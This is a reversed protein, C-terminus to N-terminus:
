AVEGEAAAVLHRRLAREARARRALVADLCLGSRGALEGPRIGLVRTAWVLTAAEPSLVGCGVAMAMIEVADGFGGDTSSGAPDVQGTPAEHTRRRAAARLEDRVATRAGSIITRDPWALRQGALRRLREWAAAAVAQEVEARDARWSRALEAAVRGLGPLCATLVVEAALPDQAAWTLVLGLEARRAAAPRDPDTLLALVDAATASGAFAATRSRWATVASRTAPKALRYRADVDLQELLRPTRTM